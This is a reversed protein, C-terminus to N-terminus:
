FRVSLNFALVFKGSVSAMNSSQVKFSTLSELTRYLSRAVGDGKNCVLKVYFEREEVQFVDM